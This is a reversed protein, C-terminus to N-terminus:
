GFPLKKVAQQVEAHTLSFWTKLQKKKSRGSIFYELRTDIDVGHKQLEARFLQKPFADSFMPYWGDRMWQLTSGIYTGTTPNIPIHYFPNVM